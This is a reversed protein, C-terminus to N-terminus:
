TAKQGSSKHWFAFSYITNILISFILAEAIRGLESKKERVTLADLVATSIFGPVLFILVQLADLSYM